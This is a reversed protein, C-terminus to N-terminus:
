ETVTLDRTNVGELTLLAKKRELGGGYGTLANNAGLVRHCPVIVAIPNGGVAGGVAQAAMKPIGREKALTEAIQGYTVTEGFPIERLIDWVRLRFPSGTMHLRPLFGPDRGSFYIDLWAKARLIDATETQAAGEPLGRCGDRGGGAFLLGTLGTEDATLLMRGLPSAYEGTYVM